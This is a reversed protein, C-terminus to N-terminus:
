KRLSHNKSPASCNHVRVHWRYAVCRGFLGDLAEESPAEKIPSLVPPIAEELSKEKVPAVTSAKVAHTLDDGEQAVADTMAHCDNCFGITMLSVATALRHSFHDM